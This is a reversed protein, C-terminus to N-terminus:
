EFDSRDCVGSHLINIYANRATEEYISMEPEQVVIKDAPVGRSILENKVMVSRQNALATAEDSPQEGFTSGKIKIIFDKNQTKKSFRVIKTISEETSEPSEYSVSNPNFFITDTYIHDSELSSFEEENDWLGMSDLTDKGIDNFVVCRSPDRLSIGSNDNAPAGPKKTKSDTTKTSQVQEQKAKNQVGVYGSLAVAALVIVLLLVVAAVVSAIIIKTSKKLQNGSGPLNSPAAPEQPPAPIPTPMPPEQPPTSAPMPPEQPVAVPEQPPVPSGQPPMPPEQPPQFKSNDM